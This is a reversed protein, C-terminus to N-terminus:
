PSTVRVEVSPPELVVPSVQYLTAKYEGPPLPPLVDGGCFPERDGFCANYRAFLTVPYTTEGIPITQRGACMPWAVFSEDNIDGKTLLLQFWSLCAGITIEAGTSNTVVVTAPMSSGAVMERSPLEIRAVVGSDPPSVPTESGPGNSNVKSSNTSNDPSFWVSAILALVVCSLVLAAGGAALAVVSPRRRWKPRSRAVMSGKASAQRALIREASPPLAARETVRRLEDRILEDVDSM